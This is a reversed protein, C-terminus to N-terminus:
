YYGIYLSFILWLSLRLLKLTLLYAMYPLLFIEGSNQVRWTKIFRTNPPISEGDGITVDKIFTMLPIRVNPQEFDYYSCVAAQLNRCILVHCQTFYKNISLEGLTQYPIYLIGECAVIWLVIWTDLDLVKFNECCISIQRISVPCTESMLVVYM